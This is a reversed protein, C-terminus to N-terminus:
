SHRYLTFTFSSQVSIPLPYNYNSTNPTPVSYPLFLCESTDLLPFIVLLFRHSIKHSIQLTSSLHNQTEISVLAANIQDSM